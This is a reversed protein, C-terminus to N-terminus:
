ECYFIFNNGDSDYLFYELGDGDVFDYFYTIISEFYTWDNFPDNPPCEAIKPKYLYNIKEQNILTSIDFIDRPM